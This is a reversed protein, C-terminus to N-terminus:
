EASVAGLFRETVPMHAIVAGHCDVLQVASREVNLTAGESFEALLQRVGAVDDRLLASRFAEADAMLFGGGCGPPGHKADCFGTFCPQSPPHAGGNRHWYPIFTEVDWADHEGFPCESEDCHVCDDDLAIPVALVAPVALGDDPFSTTLFTGLALTFTFLALMKM